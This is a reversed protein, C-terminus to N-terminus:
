RKSMAEAVEYCVMALIPCIVFSGLMLMSIQVAIKFDMPVVEFTGLIMWAVCSVIVIALIIGLADSTLLLFRKM